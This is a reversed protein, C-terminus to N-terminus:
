RGGEERWEARMSDLPARLFRLAGGIRLEQSLIWVPRDPYEKLLLTDRAHLDRAYLNGDGRSLLLPPFATFGAQDELLRRVCRSSLRSGPLFRLTTDTTQRLRVLRGSDARSPLLDTKLAVAGGGSRERVTVLSDLLCADTTRYIREADVRGVGLAWMRAMLQAGWSERVFVLANQVGAERALRPVDFRMTLMGNAYQKARLPFLALGGILLALVGTGIVARQWPAALHREELVAPLRATWLALWPALPLMFRPGLYFGDHWYAFYALLFGGSAVLIWRDFASIRRVLLLAGTAFLLSPAPTELFYTQLRLLYLNVLELGRAPTHPPGWPTAHFGLRHTAGWMEIYGFRLPNGTQEANVWFLALVPLAVGVGSWCLARLHPGGARARWLLWAGTPLAFVLADLPRITAGIGLALGTLFAARPHAGAGPTAIALGLAALVVATTEPVHNMASGDLFLCFPAFAFLLLAALATGQRPEIRRLLRAFGLVGIAAVLPGIVWEVRFLAGLALFASAGAPFQGYLKGGWDILHQASTFEPYTPAPLFLHGSAFIRAQFVEIIEDILLPHASLIVQAVVLYAALAVAAVGADGRWGSAHWRRGVGAWRGTRWLDPRRRLMIAAIVGVGALIVTGSSWLAVRDAYWPADHGGPIWNAIPLLGFVLLILGALFAM